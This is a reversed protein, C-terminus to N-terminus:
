TSTNDVYSIAGMTFWQLFLYTCLPFLHKYDNIVGKRKEELSNLIFLLLCCRQFVLRSPRVEVLYPIKDINYWVFLIFSFYLLVDTTLEINIGKLLLHEVVNVHGAIVATHLPTCEMEDKIIIM